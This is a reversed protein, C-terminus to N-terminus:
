IFSHLIGVNIMKESLLDYRNVMKRVYMEVQPSWSIRDNCHCVTGLFYFSICYCFLVIKFIYIKCKIPFNFM